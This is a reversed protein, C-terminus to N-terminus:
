IKKYGKGECTQCYETVDHGCFTTIEGDGECDSCVKIPLKYEKKLSEIVERCM